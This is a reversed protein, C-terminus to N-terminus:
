RDYKKVEAPVGGSGSDYDIRLSLSGFGIDNAEKRLHNLDYTIGWLEIQPGVRPKM